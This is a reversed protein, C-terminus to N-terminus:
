RFFFSYLVFSENMRFFSFSTFLNLNGLAASIRRGYFYEYEFIYESPLLLSPPKLGGGRGSPVRGRAHSHPARGHARQAEVHEDGGFVGRRDPGQCLSKALLGDFDSRM